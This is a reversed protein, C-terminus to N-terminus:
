TLRMKFVVAGEADVRHAQFIKKAIDLGVTVVNQM